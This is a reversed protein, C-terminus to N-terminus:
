RIFLCTSMCTLYIGYIWTKQPQIRTRPESGIRSNEWRLDPDLEESSPLVYTNLIVTRFHYIKEQIYMAPVPVYSNQFLKKTRVRCCIVILYRKVFLELKARSTNEPNPGNKLPHDLGDESCDQRFGVTHKSVLYQLHLYLVLRTTAARLTTGIDSTSSKYVLLFCSTKM